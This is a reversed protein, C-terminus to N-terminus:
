LPCFLSPPGDSAVSIILATGSFISCLCEKMELFKEKGEGRLFLFLFSILLSELLMQFSSNPVYQYEISKLLVNLTNSRFFMSNEAFCSEEVMRVALIGEWADVLAVM